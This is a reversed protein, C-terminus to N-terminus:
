GRKAVACLQLGRLAVAQNLLGLASFIAAKSAKEPGGLIEMLRESRGFEVILRAV